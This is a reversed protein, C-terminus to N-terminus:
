QINIGRSTKPAELMLASGPGIDRFYLNDTKYIKKNAQVYSIEVVVLDLAFASRNSVTVQLNRIGGFTGVEFKNAGVSVQNALAVKASEKDSAAKVQEAVDSRHAAERHIVIPQGVGSDSASPLPAAIKSAETKQRAGRRSKSAAQGATLAAVRESQQQTGAGVAGGAVAPVGATGTAGAPNPTAAGGSQTAAGGSQTASPTDSGGAGPNNNQNKAQQNAPDASSHQVPLQQALTRAPEGNDTASKSTFPDVRTNDRRISIGIFSGSALVILAAVAVLSLQGARNVKHRPLPSLIEAVPEGGYDAGSVNYGPRGRGAQADY